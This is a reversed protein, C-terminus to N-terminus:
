ACEDVTENESEIRPVDAITPDNEKRWKKFQRIYRKSIIQERKLEIMEQTPSEIGSMRWMSIIYSDPMSYIAGVACPDIKRNVYLHNLWYNANLINKQGLIKAEANKLYRKAENVRRNFQRLISYINTCKICPAETHLYNFFVVHKFSECYPCWFL